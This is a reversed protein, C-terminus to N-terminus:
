SCQEIRYKQMEHFANKRTAIFAKCEKLNVKHIQFKMIEKQAKSYENQWYLFNECKIYQVGIGKGVIFGIM